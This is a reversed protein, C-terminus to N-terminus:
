KGFPKAKESPEWMVGKAVGLPDDPDNSRVAARGTLPVNIRTRNIDNLIERAEEIVGDQTADMDLQDISITSEEYVM